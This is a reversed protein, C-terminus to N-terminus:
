AARSRGAKARKREKSSLGGWVGYDENELAWVLCDERVPCRACIQKAPEASQGRTPYWLDPDSAGVCAGRQMWGPLASFELNEIHDIADDM